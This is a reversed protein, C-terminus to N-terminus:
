CLFRHKALSCLINVQVLSSEGMIRRQVRSQSLLSLAGSVDWYQLESKKLSSIVDQVIGVMKSGFRASISDFQKLALHRIHDYEHTCLRHVLVQLARMTVPSDIRRTAEGALAKCRQIYMIWAMCAIGSTSQDHSRWYELDLLPSPSDVEMSNGAEGSAARTLVFHKVRHYVVNSVSSRGVKLSYKMYKRMNEVDKLCAMRRNVVHNFLQLWLTQISVNNKLAAYPHASPITHMADQFSNLFKLVEVRLTQLYISDAPDVLSEILAERGTSLLRWAGHQDGENAETSEHLHDGLIESAGRLAKEIMWLRSVLHEESKKFATTANTSPTGAVSIPNSLNVAGLETLDDTSSKSSPALPSALSTIDALAQQMDRMSDTVVSKLLGIVTQISDASPVHWQVQEIRLFAYLILL